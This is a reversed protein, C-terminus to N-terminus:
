SARADRPPPSEIRTFGDRASHPLPEAARGARDSIRLGVAPPLAAAKPPLRLHASDRWPATTQGAM